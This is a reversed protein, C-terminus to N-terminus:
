ATYRNTVVVNSCNAWALTIPCDVMQGGWAIAAWGVDNPAQIQLVVEYPANEPVSDPLAVRFFIRAEGVSYSADWQAFTFGTLPDDYPKVESAGGPLNALPDCFWPPEEVLCPNEYEPPYEEELPPCTEPRDPGTDECPDM